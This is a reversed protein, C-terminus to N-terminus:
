LQGEDSYCFEQWLRAAFPHPADKNIAQCYYNGFVGDTPVSVQWTIQGAFEDGYAIQLYDWDITIPTEGKAVSGPTADVAIFNGSDALEAFFDIGPTIDDLSGGNALAAAYVAAFASGSERPDGNLAVQGKYEPKLLDAWSAPVNQVVDTNAGFAVVGWYDGVWYGDPDKLEDPITDWTSVKYAAVLGEDKAQLAFPPGVDLVDPARDQGALSKVAELEEASSANPSANTIRIQYTTQFTQMMEGYNAWDPPLAITNLAGEGQAAAILDDLNVQSGDSPVETLGGGGGGGGGGGCAALFAALAFAGAGTVGGKLLARRTLARRHLDEWSLGEFGPM